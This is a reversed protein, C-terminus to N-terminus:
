YHSQPFTEQVTITRTQPISSSPRWTTTLQVLLQGCNLRYFNTLRGDASRSPTPPSSSSSRPRSTKRSTALTRGDLRTAHLTWKGIIHSITCQHSRLTFKQHHGDERDDGPLDTCASDRTLRDDVHGGHSLVGVKSRRNSARNRARAKEDDMRTRDKRRM